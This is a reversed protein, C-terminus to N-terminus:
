KTLILKDQSTIRLRYESGCHRICIERCEGFLTESAVCQRCEESRATKATKSCDLRLTSRPGNAHLFPIRLTQKSLEM